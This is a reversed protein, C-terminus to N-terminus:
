SRAAGEPSRFVCGPLRACNDSCLRWAAPLAVEDEADEDERTGASKTTMTHTYRQGHVVGGFFNNAVRLLSVGHPLLPRPNTPRSLHSAEFRDLAPLCVEPRAHSRRPYVGGSAQTLAIRRAQGPPKGATRLCGRFRRSPSRPPTASPKRRIAPPKPSVTSRPGPRIVWAM